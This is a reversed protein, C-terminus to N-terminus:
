KIQAARQRADAEEISILVQEAALRMLNSITTNYKQATAKLREILDAPLRVTVKPSGRQAMYMVEPSHYWTDSVTTLRWKWGGKGWKWPIEGFEISKRRRAGWNNETKKRWFM